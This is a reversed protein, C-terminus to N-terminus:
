KHSPCVGHHADYWLIYFDNGQKLGIIRLEGELAFSFLDDIFDDFKIKSLRAKAEKSLKDSSLNHHKSNKRSSTSQSSVENWTLKSFEIIKQLVEKHKFDTRGPNFAFEGDKDVYEFHFIPNRQSGTALSLKATKERKISTAKVKKAM